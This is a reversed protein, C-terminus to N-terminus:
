NGLVAAVFLWLIPAKFCGFNIRVTRSLPWSDLMLPQCPWEGKLTELRSYKRAKELKWLNRTNRLMPSLFELREDM